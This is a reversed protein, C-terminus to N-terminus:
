YEPLEPRSCPFMNQLGISLWEIRPQTM